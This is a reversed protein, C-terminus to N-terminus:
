NTLFKYISRCWKQNQNRCLSQHASNEYTVLTKQTTAFNNFITETEEKTVRADNVGWQFLVPCHVSKAYQQPQMNFAWFGQQIGGWFTLLTAFPEQPLNMVKLRGKVAKYLTGFPMELVLKNPKISDTAVAKIIAAAGLSIGYLIINKEGMSSAYNYAAKVDKSENYGITCINGTSNGHARFDVLLVNYNMKNFEIAEKIVGNKNGGHGHFLIVTGKTKIATDTAYWASLNYGDTTKINISQHPISFTDISEQKHFKVGFFAASTKESFAMQEPKKIEGIGDYFHTLKYAQFACVINLLIFIVVFVKLTKKLLSM